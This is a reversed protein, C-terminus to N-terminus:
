DFLFFLSFSIRDVLLFVFIWICLHMFAISDIAKRLSINITIIQTTGLILEGESIYVLESASAM